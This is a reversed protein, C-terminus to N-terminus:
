HELSSGSSKPWAAQEEEREQEARYRDREIEYQIKRGANYFGVIIGLVLLGMTMTYGTGLRRDLYHGLVAGGCIPLGLDWGISTARLADAWASEWVSHKDNRSM